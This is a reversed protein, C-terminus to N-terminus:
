KFEAIKKDLLDNLHQFIATLTNDLTKTNDVLKFKETEPYSFQQFENEKIVRKFHTKPNRGRTIAIDKTVDLIVGGFLNPLESLYKTDIQVGEILLNVGTDAYHNINFEVVDRYFDNASSSSFNELFSHEETPRIIRIIKSVAGLNFVQYFNLLTILKKTIITKGSSNTGTICFILPVGLANVDEIKKNLNGILFSDM